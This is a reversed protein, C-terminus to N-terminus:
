LDAGQGSSSFDGHSSARVDLPSNRSALLGSESREGSHRSEQIASRGLAYVAAYDGESIPGPPFQDIMWVGTLDPAGAAKSPNATQAFIAPLVFLFATGCVVSSKLRNRVM